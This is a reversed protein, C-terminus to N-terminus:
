EIYIRIYQMIGGLTIAERKSFEITEPAYLRVKILDDDSKKDSKNSCFALDLQDKILYMFTYFKYRDVINAMFISKNDKYTKKIKYKEPFGQYYFPPGYMLSEPIKLEIPSIVAIEYDCFDWGLIIECGKYSIKIIPHTISESIHQGVIVINKESYEIIENPTGSNLLKHDIFLNFITNGWFAYEDWYRKYDAKDASPSNAELWTQFKRNIM